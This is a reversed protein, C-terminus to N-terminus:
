RVRTEPRRHENLVNFFEKSATEFAGMKRLESPRYPLVARIARRLAQDGSYGCARGVSRVSHGPDDLLECALLVRLWLVLRRPVPLQSRESWRLLTSASLDFADALDRPLGGAVVTDIAGDMIARGRGSLSSLEPSGMLRHFPQSRASLLRRTLALATTDDDLDVIEAVGQQGLLRLDGIRDPRMHLAAVVCSSPFRQRLQILEPALGPSAGSSHYPDVLLVAGPSAELTRANLEAWDEILSHRFRGELDHAVRHRLGADTHLVLLPRAHERM